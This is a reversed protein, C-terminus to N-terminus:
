HRRPRPGAIWGWIVMAVYGLCLVILTLWAFSFLAAGVVAVGVVRHEIEPPRRRRTVARHDVVRQVDRARPDFGHAHCEVRVARGFHSRPGALIWPFDALATLSVSEGPLVGEPVAAHLREVAVVSWQLAPDRDLPHGSYDIVFSMDLLGDRVADATEEPALESTRVEIGPHDLHLAAAACREGLRGPLLAAAHELGALVPAATGLTLQGEDLEWYDPSPLPLGDAALRGLATTACHRVFGEIASAHSTGRWSDATSGASWLVWGFGDDQPPRDDPTGGDLAYRAQM